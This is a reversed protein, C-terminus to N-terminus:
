DENYNFLENMSNTEPDDTDKVDTEWNIEDEIDQMLNITLKIIFLLIFIEM